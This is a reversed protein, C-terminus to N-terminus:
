HLSTELEAFKPRWTASKVEPYLVHFQNFVKAAAARDTKELCVLQYYKAELWEESGGDLGALLKRWHELSEWAFRTYIEDPGYATRTM